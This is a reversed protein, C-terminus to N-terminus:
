VRCASNVIFISINLAFIRHTSNTGILLMNCMWSWMIMNIQQLILLKYIIYNTSPINSTCNIDYSFRICKLHLYLYKGYCVNWLAPLYVICIHDSNKVCQLQITTIEYPPPRRLPMAADNVSEAPIRFLYCWIKVM